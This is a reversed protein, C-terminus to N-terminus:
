NKTPVVQEAAALARQNNLAQISNSGGSHSARRERNAKKFDDISKFQDLRKQLETDIHLDRPLKSKNFFLYAWFKELGYLEGQEVDWKTLEQFDGFIDKRFKKELGYSFYRFLCELGYRYNNKADELALRRFESLMKKNYSDRLFHSWFRFLTNMEQSQGSGLQKREKLAKAHYRYYKHQMFGNERLLGHSPHEHHSTGTQLVGSQSGVSSAAMHQELYSGTEFSSGSARDLSKSMEAEAATYPQNGVLWGVPTQAQHKRNDRYKRPFRPGSTPGFMPSKGFSGASGSVAQPKASGSQNQQYQHAAAGDENEQVPIFRAALRRGRRQGRRENVGPIARAREAEEIKQRLEDSISLTSLSGAAGSQSVPGNFSSAEGAIKDEHIRDFEKRGITNVKVNSQREQRQKLRLDREYNRLGENIVDTLDDQVSKREYQYHTRDRTRKQTVILLRAIVEEDVDDDGEDGSYWDSADDHSLEDHGFKFSQRRASTSTSRRGGTQRRERRQRSELEEDLEFMDDNYGGGYADDFEDMDDDGNDDFSNNPAEASGGIRRGSVAKWSPTASPLVPTASPILPQTPPLQLDANNKSNAANNKLSNNSQQQQKQQQVFEPTPFLWTAWDGRKRVRDGAESLEVKESADLASRVLDLDTTAMKLRNFGAILRLPVYGDPDMQTRFFIDKCLNDVSFYYEIQAKVFSKVSEEDGAIPQPMPVSVHPGTQVNGKGQYHSPAHGAIRHGGRRGYSSNHTYGRGRGRGRTGQRQSRGHQNSNRNGSDGQNQDQVLEQQELQQQQQKKQQQQQKPANQDDDSQSSKKAANGPKANNAGGSNDASRAAASKNSTGNQQHKQQNQQPKQPHQHKQNNSQQHQRQQRQPGSASQLAGKPKTYNIETDLPTWKDKGKKGQKKPAPQTQQPQPQPQSQPPQHSVPETAAAAPDPWSEPDPVVTAVYNYISAM